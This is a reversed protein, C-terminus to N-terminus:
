FSYLQKFSQVNYIEKNTLADSLEPGTKLLLLNIESIVDPNPVFGSLDLDLNTINFINTYNHLKLSDKICEFYQKVKSFTEYEIISHEFQLFFYDEELIDLDVKIEKNLVRDWLSFNEDGTLVGHKEFVIDNYSFYTTKRIMTLIENTKSDMLCFTYYGGVNKYSIIITSDPSTLKDLYTIGNKNYTSFKSIINQYNWIEVSSLFFLIRDIDNIM